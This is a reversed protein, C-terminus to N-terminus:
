IGLVWKFLTTNDKQRKKIEGKYIKLDEKCEEIDETNKDTKYTIEKIEDNQKSMTGYLKGLEVQIDKNGEVMQKNIETMAVVAIELSHDKDDHKQDVENMRQ